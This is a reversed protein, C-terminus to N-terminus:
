ERPRTEAITRSLKPALQDRSYDQATGRVRECLAAYQEGTMAKASRIANATGERDGHEVTWGLERREILACLPSSRPGIYLVPKGTAIIAYLKSPHVLGVYDDGMSVVHVHAANLSQNLHERPQYPLQVIQSLQHKERFRTVESRRAGGGVFLFTIPDDRLELASELLTRLPHCISHNGSYMVVFSNSLQHETLFPNSDRPLPALATTDAWLPEVTVAAPNAGSEILQERMADDLTVISQLRGLFFRNLFLLTRALFGGESIWRTKITQQPNLDLAWHILESQHRVNALSIFWLLLPPSTLVVVRDFRPLITYRLAFAVGMLLADLIRLVRWFKYLGFSWVRYITFGDKEEFSPFRQGPDLYARQASLVSVDHQQDRLAAALDTLYQGSAALDPAFSQNILLIKM